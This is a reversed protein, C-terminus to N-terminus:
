GLKSKIKEMDDVFVLIQAVVEYLEPPIAEGIKLNSLTSALANDKYFPVDNEKAENIIKEAVHGTGTALIRPAEDGAEFSLAVATTDKDVTEVSNSNKPIYKTEAM